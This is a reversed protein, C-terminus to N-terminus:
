QRPLYSCRIRQRRGHRAVDYCYLYDDGVSLTEFEYAELHAEYLAARYSDNFEEPLLMQHIEEPEFTFELSDQPPDQIIIRAGWGADFLLLPLWRTESGFFFLEDVLFDGSRLREYIDDAFLDFEFVVQDEDFWIDTLTRVADVEAPLGSALSNIHYELLYDALGQKDSTQAKAPLVAVFLEAIVALNLLKRM